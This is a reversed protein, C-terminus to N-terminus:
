GAKTFFWVFIHFTRFLFFLNFSARIHMFCVFSFACISYMSIFEIVSRGNHALLLMLVCLYSFYCVEILFGLLELDIHLECIM